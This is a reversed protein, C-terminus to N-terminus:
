DKHMESNKSQYRDIFSQINESLLEPIAGVVTDIPWNWWSIEELATIQEATFRYSIVTIPNGAAIAYPPINKSVVSGAGIIAGNGINVGSLIIANQCIWVDNGIIIDGKTQPHGKINKAKTFFINFPYTTIWDKRHEGGLLIQVNGAISCFKGITLKTNQDWTKITPNGYTWDGINYQEYKPNLNMFFLPDYSNDIYTDIEVQNYLQSYKIESRKKETFRDLISRLQRKM